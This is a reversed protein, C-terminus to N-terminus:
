VSRSVRVVPLGADTGSRPAHKKERTPCRRANHGSARCTGCLQRPKQPQLRTRTEEMSKSRPATEEVTEAKSQPNKGKVYSPPIMQHWTDHGLWPGLDNDWGLALCAMPNVSHRDKFAPGDWREFWFRLTINEDVLSRAMPDRPPKVIDNLHLLRDEDQDFVAPYNRADTHITGRGIHIRSASAYSQYPERLLDMFCYLGNASMASIKPKVTSDYRGSHNFGSFLYFYLQFVDSFDTGLDVGYVNPSSSLFLYARITGASEYSARTEFMKEYLHRIGLRSLSLEDEFILEGLFYALTILTYCVTVMSCRYPHHGCTCESQIKEVATRHLEVCRTEMEERGSLKWETLRMRSKEFNFSPRPLPSVTKRVSLDVEHVTSRRLGNLESVARTSLFRLEPLLEAVREIIEEPSSYGSSRLSDYYIYACTALLQASGEIRVNKLFDGFCEEIISDRHLGSTLLHSDAPHGEHHWRAVFEIPNLTFIRSVYYIDMDSVSVIKFRVQAQREKADYNRFYVDDNAARLEVRLDLLFDCFVIAWCCDSGGVVEIAEWQGKQIMGIAAIVEALQKPHAARNSAVDYQSVPTNFGAIRAMQGVKRSFISTAFIGSCTRVFNEWQSFAPTLEASSKSLKAMEYFVCASYQSSHGETLCAAIAVSSAGQSSQVLTRLVHRIGVGFWVVDGFSSFSKLSLMATRLVEEGHTGIPINTCMAQAIAITLPELGASSLRGLVALSASFTTQSLAKWDVTGQQPFSIAGSSTPVLEMEIYSVRVVRLALFSLRILPTELFLVIANTKDLQAGGGTKLSPSLFSPPFLIVAKYSNM